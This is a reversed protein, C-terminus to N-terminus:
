LLEFTLWDKKADYMQQLISRLYANQAAVAWVVGQARLLKVNNDSSLNLLSCMELGSDLVHLLPDRPIMVHENIVSYAVAELMLNRARTADRFGNFGVCIHTQISGDPRISDPYFFKAAYTQLQSIALKPRDKFQLGLVEIHNQSKLYRGMLQSLREFYLNRWQSDSAVLPSFRSSDQPHWFLYEDKLASYNIALYEIVRANDRAFSSLLTNEPPQFELRWDKPGTLDREFEKHLSDLTISQANLDFSSGLLFLLVVLYRM